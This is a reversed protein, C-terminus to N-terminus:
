REPGTWPFAQEDTQGYMQMLYPSIPIFPRVGVGGGSGGGGFAGNGVSTYPFFSGVDNDDGVQLELGSVYQDLNPNFDQSLSIFDMSDM